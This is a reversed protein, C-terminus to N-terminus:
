GKPLRLLNDAGGDSGDGALMKAELRDIADLINGATQNQRANIVEPENSVVVRPLPRQAEAQARALPKELYAFHEIPGDRKRKAVARTESRMVEPSWGENLCKQVWMPSGCWGPPWGIPDPFGCISALEEALTGAEDSVLGRKGGDDDEEQSQPQPQTHMQVALAPANADKKAHKEEAAKKRKNSIDLSKALEADIRKHRWNSDFLPALIPRVDGWKKASLRSIRALRADDAPLSGNAWYHMILLLYAGHETTTLHGTDALYDAVYLPMWPRSM